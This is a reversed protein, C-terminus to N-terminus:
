PHSPAGQRSFFFIVYCGGEVEVDKTLETLPRSVGAGPGKLQTESYSNSAWQSSESM